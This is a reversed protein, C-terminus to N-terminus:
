LNYFLQSINTELARALRWIIEISVNRKGREIGPLYTRDIDAMNALKEQSFGKQLRLEKIRNGFKLKIDDM